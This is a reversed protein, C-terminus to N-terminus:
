IGYCDPMKSVRGSRTINPTDQSVNSKAQNDIVSNKRDILEKFSVPEDNVDPCANGEAVSTPSLDESVRSPPTGLAPSQELAKGPMMNPVVIDPYCDNNEGKGCVDKSSDSDNHRLKM